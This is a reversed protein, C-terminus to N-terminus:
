RAAALGAAAVALPAVVSLMAPRSSAAAGVSGPRMGAVGANGYCNTTTKGESCVSVAYDGMTATVGQVTPPVGCNIYVELCWDYCPKMALGNNCPVAYTQANVHAVAICTYELMKTRCLATDRIASTTKMNTFSQNAISDLAQFKAVTIKDSTGLAPLGNIQSCTTMNAFTYPCVDAQADSFFALYVVILFARTRM